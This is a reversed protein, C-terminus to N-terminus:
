QRLYDQIELYEVDQRDEFFDKLLARHAAGIIVLIRDNPSTVRDINSMIMINREWWKATFRAGVNNHEDIFKATSNLY